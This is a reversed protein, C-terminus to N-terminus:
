SLAEAAPSLHKAYLLQAHEFEEPTDIDVGSTMSTEMFFPRDGIQFRNALMLRKPALWLACNMQYLPKLTQSANLWVGFQFNLPLLDPGLFYHQLKTVTVVSDHETNNQLLRVAEDYGTFLPTTPPCIAVLVDDGEPLQYLLGALVEHWPTEDLCFRPDRLLFDVAQREAAIRGSEVDSSVYIADFVDASKCQQIKVDVLSHEGIFPRFNKDLVRTSRGKAPIIAVVRM